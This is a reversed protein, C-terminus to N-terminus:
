KTVTMFGLQRCIVHALRVVGDKQNPTQNYCVPLTPHSNHPIGVHNIWPVIVPGDETPQTQFSLHFSGQKTFDYEEDDTINGPKEFQSLEKFFSL